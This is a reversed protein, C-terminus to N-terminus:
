QTIQYAIKYKQMATLRENLSTFLKHRIRTAVQGREHTWKRYVLPQGYSISALEKTKQYNHVYYNILYHTLSLTAM